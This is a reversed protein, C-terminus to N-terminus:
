EGERFQLIQQAQHWYHFAEPNGGKLRDLPGWPAMIRKDRLENAATELAFRLSSFTIGSPRRQLWAALCAAKAAAIRAETQAFPLNLLHNQLSKVGTQLLETHASTAGGRLGSQSYTFAANITDNLTDSLTYSKKRYGLQKMHMHDYATAVEDLDSAADFLVGVDFLQKVIDAKRDPHYLIGITEPAFATLKDGLLHNVTPVAVKVERLTEIFSVQILILECGPPEEQEFLVDLLIHDNKSEVVSPYSVKYHKKPPSERDRKSDHLYSIFPNAGVVGDLVRRLTDPSVQTVIDVDISLRRLPNLRLLLSTGGKFQFPIGSEAFCGLLQFAMIAKELMVPNRCGLAAGHRGIWEKEFCKDDLM